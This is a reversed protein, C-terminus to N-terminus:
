GARLLYRVGLSDAEYENERSYGKLYVDAGQTAVQGLADSGTAIGIGTALIQTLISRTYLQASHHATVHGIEHGLVGALEAENNALAMLGRTIHIYGGPLAFANVIENDLITFTFKTDSMETTKVLLNGVSDVYRQVEPDNIEGGFSKVLSRFLM